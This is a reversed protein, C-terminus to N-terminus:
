YKGGKALKIMLYDRMENPLEIILDILLEFDDENLPGKRTNCTKCILQLNDVTSDGNKSIPIIHDCAINRYTLTKQCYKCEKGYANIFMKKLDILEIEFKVNAELSRRKLSSKLTSIKRTLKKYAKQWFNGHVPRLVKEFDAKLIKTM